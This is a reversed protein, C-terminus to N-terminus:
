LRIGSENNGVTHNDKGISRGNGVIFIIGWLLQEISKFYGTAIFTNDIQPVSAFQRFLWESTLFSVAFDRQGLLLSYNKQFETKIVGYANDNIYESYTGSSDNSSKVKDYDFELLDTRLQNRLDELNKDNCIQTVNYGIADRMEESFHLM